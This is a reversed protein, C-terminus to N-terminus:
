QLKPGLWEADVAKVNEGWKESENRAPAPVSNHCRVQQDGKDMQTLETNCRTPIRWIRPDREDLCTLFQLAQNYCGWYGWGLMQKTELGGHQMNKEDLIMDM